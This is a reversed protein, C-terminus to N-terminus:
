MFEWKYLRGRSKIGKDLLQMVSKVSYRETTITNKQFCTSKELRFMINKETKNSVTFIRTSVIEGEVTTTQNIKTGITITNKM